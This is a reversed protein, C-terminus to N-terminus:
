HHSKSLPVGPTCAAPSIGQFLCRSLLGVRQLGGMLEDWPHYDITHRELGPNYCCAQVNETKKVGYIMWCAATRRSHAPLVQLSTVSHFAKQAVM